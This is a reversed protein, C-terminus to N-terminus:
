TAKKTIAQRQAFWQMVERAIGDKSVKTTDVPLNNAKCFANLYNKSKEKIFEDIAKTNKTRFKEYLREYEVRLEENSPLSEKKSAKKPQTEKEKILIELENKIEALLNEIHQIKKKINDFRNMVAGELNKRYQDM